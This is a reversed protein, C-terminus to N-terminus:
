EEPGSEEEEETAPNPMKEDLRALAEKATRLVEKDIEHDAAHELAEHALEGGIIELSKASAIRVEPSEDKKLARALPEVGLESRMNGLADAAAERVREDEDRLAHALPGVAPLRLRLTLDVAQDYVSPVVSNVATDMVPRAARKVAQVGVNLISPPLGGAYRSLIRVAAYEVRPILRKMLFDAAKGYSSPSVKEKASRLMASTSAAALEGLGQAAELREDASESKLEEIFTRAKSSSAAQLLKGVAASAPNPKSEEEPEEKKDSEGEDSTDEESTETEATEEEVAEEGPTETESEEDSAKEEPEEEPTKDVPSM